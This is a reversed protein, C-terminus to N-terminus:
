YLLPQDARVLEDCGPEWPFLGQEAGPWFLQYADVAEDGTRYGRYWMASNLYAIEVRSPHVPRSICDFGEILGSWRAGDTLIAGAKLKDFMTWLMQHTLEFDLGFIILEPACLTEWFGVTYAFSPEGDGAGVM